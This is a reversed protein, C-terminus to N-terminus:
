KRRRRKYKKGGKHYFRGYNEEALEEMFRQDKAKTAGILITHIEFHLFRNLQKVKKLVRKPHVYKGATPGGDSLLFVTDAYPDMLAKYLGDYFNGRMRYRSGIPQTPSISSIYRIAYRKNRETAQTLQKQWSFVDSELFFVNFFVKKQLSRITKILEEKCIDFKIRGKKDGEGLPNRMSGSHDVIFVIRTSYIPIGHYRVVTRVRKLAEEGKKGGEGPQFRNQNLEWWSKWGRYSPLIGSEGTIRSLFQINNYFMRGELKQLLEIMQSIAEKLLSLPAKKKAAREVALFSVFLPQWGKLRIKKPKVKKLIVLAEKLGQVPDLQSILNLAHAQVLYHRDKLFKKLFPLSNKGEIAM